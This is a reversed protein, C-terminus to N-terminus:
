HLPLNMKKLLEEFRPDDIKFPERLWMSCGIYPMNANRDQLGQELVDMAKSDEKATSYAISLGLPDNLGAKKTEEAFKIAAMKYGKQDHLDMILKSTEEDFYNWLTMYHLASRNDGKNYNAYVLACLAVGHKPAYSLAKEAVEIAKESEGNNAAVVAYFSLTMPDLADLHLAIEAQKMAEEDRKLIILLHAYMRRGRADNPYLELLDLVLREGKEWDFESWISIPAIQRLLAVNDPDLKRATVIFQNIKATAVSDPVLVGQKLYLWYRAMGLYGGIWDPDIDVARQFHQRALEISEPTFQGLYFNGRFLAEQAKPNVVEIKTLRAEEGPTLEVQLERSIEKATGRLRNQIQGMDVYYEKLWVQEEVPDIKVIRVKFCISDGACMVSSEILYDVKIEESIEQVSKKSEKYVKASILSPVRLSSIMGINSHLEDHIGAMLYDLTDTNTYNDPSFVLVTPLEVPLNSLKDWIYLSGLVLLLAVTIWVVPSKYISKRKIRNQFEAQSSPPLGEGQVAFLKLPNKVNKLNIEGLDRTSIDSKSQISKQVTDSIFIGGPDAISQIRSAINVGDGFVDNNEATIDGLHIGIRVKAELEKSAQKQIEVACCVSDVASDFQVLMGDGIEKILTGNFQEILKFHIARNARLVQFARDEDSGMLATYGVIDTFMIAALRRTPSADKRQVM